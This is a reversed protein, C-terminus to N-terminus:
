RGVGADGKNSILVVQPLEARDLIVKLKVQFVPHSALIYTEVGLREKVARYDDGTMLCYVSRGSSFATQLEEIQYYEFVQRGLYFSMSPSALRYYGVMDGTEARSEIVECMRPVPKFREFDPLIVLALLWNFIVLAVAPTAAAVFNSKFAAALMVIVACAVAIISAPTAGGIRYPGSAPGFIYFIAAGAIFLIAAVAIIGLRIALAQEKATAPNIYDALVKGIFAAAAAYAPLIYLDEKNSSLSYFAVIVAIWLLLLLSISSSAETQLSSNTRGRTRRRLGAWAAALLLPSYPLLDGIIVPLYFFPGRRPGWVPETFRSLNDKLIFSEIYQWGHQQYIALYWPLVIAAVVLVGQPIMMTRLLGAGGRFLSYIIFVAAPLLAAVPGKTMIGLGIAIYMIVLYKRRKAPYREAMAFMLLALSMFMALYLDIMIRRSFMFFRPSAALAIAAFLGAEISSILRGLGFAIAIMAVAAVAIAFREVSVSVGFVEYLSAVIWYSLPPKNFRPRYNFSPNIWDGSEIMERPTGAYFAENSDWLSSAGLNIFYSAAALTVIIALILRNNQPSSKM